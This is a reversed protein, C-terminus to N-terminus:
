IHCYIIVLTLLVQSYQADFSKVIWCRDPPYLYFSFNLLFLLFAQVSLSTVKPKWGVRSYLFATCDFHEPFFYHVNWLGYVTYVANSEASLNNRPSPSPVQWLIRWPPPTTCPAPTTSSRPEPCSIMSVCTLPPTPTWRSTSFFEHNGWDFGYLKKAHPIFHDGFLNSFQFRQKWVNIQTGYCDPGQCGTSSCCASSASGVRMPPLACPSRERM